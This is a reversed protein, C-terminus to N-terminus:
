ARRRSTHPDPRRSNKQLAVQRGVEITLTHRAGLKVGEHESITPGSVRLEADLPDFEIRECRVALSMKVRSSDTSGSSSERTVKRLTTALVADGVSLLGYVGWVDESTQPLLTVSSEAAPRWGGGAGGVFADGTTKLLRM